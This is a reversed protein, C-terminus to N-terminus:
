FYDRAEFLLGLLFRGVASPLWWMVDRWGGLLYSRDGEQGESIERGWGGGRPEPPEACGGKCGGVEWFNDKRNGPLVREAPLVKLWLDRTELDPPLGLGEDGGFYTAYLREAPLGFVEDGTLADFGWEM